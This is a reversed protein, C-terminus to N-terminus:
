FECQNKYPAKRTRVLLSLKVVQATIKLYFTGYVFKLVKSSNQSQKFSQYHCLPWFSDFKSEKRFAGM